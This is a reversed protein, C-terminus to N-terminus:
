TRLGLAAKCRREFNSAVECRAPTVPRAAGEGTKTDCAARESRARLNIHTVNHTLVIFRAVAWVESCGARNLPADDRVCNKARCYGAPRADGSRMGTHLFQSPWAGTRTGRRLAVKSERPSCPWSPHRSKHKPQFENTRSRVRVTRCLALGQLGEGEFFATANLGCLEDSLVRSGPRM